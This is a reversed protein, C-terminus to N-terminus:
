SLLQEFTKNLAEEAESLSQDMFSLTVLTYFNFATSVIGTSPISSTIKEQHIQPHLALYADIQQDQELLLAVIKFGSINDLLEHLVSEPRVNSNEFDTKDLDLQTLTSVLVGPTEGSKLRALARGWVQLLALPKTKYIYQVAEQHDGGLDMLKAAVTFSKPTTRVDQFSHTKSIIGSLLATAIKPSIKESDLRVLLEYVVESVSIQTVDVLNLAGYYENTAEVDINIIPTEFFLNASNSYLDGLDELNTAGITIICDPKELKSIVTVDSEKFEGEKPTLYIVATDALTEYTLEGLKTEKTNVQITLKKETLSSINGVRSGGLFAIENPLEEQSSLTVTKGQSKLFDAVAIGTAGIEPTVFKPLCILIRSSNKVRDVASEIIKEDM